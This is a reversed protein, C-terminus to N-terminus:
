SPKEQDSATCPHQALDLRIWARWGATGAILVRGRWPCRACAPRVGAFVGHVPEYVVGGPLRVLTNV